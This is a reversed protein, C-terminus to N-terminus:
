SPTHKPVERYKLSAPQGFIKYAVADYEGGYFVKELVKGLLEDLGENLGYDLASLPGKGEMFAQPPGNTQWNTKPPEKKGKHLSINPTTKLENAVDSNVMLNGELVVGFVKPFICKVGIVVAMIIRNLVPTKRLICLNDPTLNGFAMRVDEWDCEWKHNLFSEPPSPYAWTHTTIKKSDLLNKAALSPIIILRAWQGALKLHTSVNVM